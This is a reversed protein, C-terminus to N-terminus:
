SALWPMSGFIAALTSLSGDKASFLTAAGNLGMLLAFKLHTDLSFPWTSMGYLMVRRESARTHRIRLSKLAEADSAKAEFAADLEALEAETKQDERVKYAHLASHIEFTPALLMMIALAYPAAVGTWLIVIELDSAHHTGGGVLSASHVASDALLIYSTVLVGGIIAIISFTTVARGLFLMGGCGDPATFDFHPRDHRVYTHITRVIGVAGWVAVGCVMGALFYGIALTVAQGPGDPKLGIGWATATNGIGFLVAAILFNRDTLLRALEAPYTPAKGTGVRNDMQNMLERFVATALYILVPVLFIIAALLQPYLNLTSGAFILSHLLYYAGALLFPLSVKPIIAAPAAAAIREFFPNFEVAAGAGTIKEGSALTMEASAAPGVKGAMGM